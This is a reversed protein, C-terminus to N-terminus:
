DLVDMADLDKLMDSLDGGPGNLIEEILLDEESM